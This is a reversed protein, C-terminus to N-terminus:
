SCVYGVIELPRKMPGKVRVDGEDGCEAVM